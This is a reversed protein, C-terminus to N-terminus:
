CLLGEARATEKLDDFNYAVQVFEEDKFGHLKMQKRIVELKESTNSYIDDMIKNIQNSENFMKILYGDRGGGFITKRKGLEHEDISVLSGDTDILVNRLCFDTVRLIGRFLAIRLLEGVNEENNELLHKNHQLMDGNGIVRM